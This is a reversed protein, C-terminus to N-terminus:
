KVMKTTMIADAHVTARLFLFFMNTKLTNIYLMNDALGIFYQYDYM